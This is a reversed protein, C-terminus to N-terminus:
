FQIRDSTIKNQTLNERSIILNVPIAPILM